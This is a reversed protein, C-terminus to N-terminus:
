TSWSCWMSRLQLRRSRWASLRWRFYWWHILARRRTIWGELVADTSLPETRCSLATLNGAM